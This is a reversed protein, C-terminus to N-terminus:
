LLPKSASVMLALSTAIVVVVAFVARMSYIRNRSRRRTAFYDAAAHRAHRRQQTNDLPEIRANASVSQM